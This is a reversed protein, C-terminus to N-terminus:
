FDKLFRILRALKSNFYFLSVWKDSNGREFLSSVIINAKLLNVSNEANECHGLRVTRIKLSLLSLLRDESIIFNDFNFVSSRELLSRGSKGDSNPNISLKTRIWSSPFGSLAILCFIRAPPVLM